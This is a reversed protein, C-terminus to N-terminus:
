YNWHHIWCIHLRTVCILSLRWVHTHTYIVYKFHKLKCLDHFCTDQLPIFNYEGHNIGEVNMPVDPMEQLSPPGKVEKESSIHGAGAAISPTKSDAFVLHPLHSMVHSMLQSMVPPCLSSLCMVLSWVLQCQHSM